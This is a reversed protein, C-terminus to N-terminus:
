RGHATAARALARECRTSLGPPPPLPQDTTVEQSPEVTPAAAPTIQPTIVKKITKTIVKSQGWATSGSLVLVIGTLVILGSVAVTKNNNM